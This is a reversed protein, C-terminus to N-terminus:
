KGVGASVDKSGEYDIEEDAAVQSKWNKRATWTSPKSHMRKRLQAMISKEMDEVGAEFEMDEKAYAKTRRREWAFYLAVTLVTFPVGVVWYLWFRPSVVSAMDPADNFNFFTTSFISALFTGPLFITGLLAIGKMAESERKSIHTLKSQEGAMHLSLRSERQAIIGSLASRQIELRKMTTNAYTEIGMWRKKYLQLRSTFTKQFKEIKPDEKSTPITNMFLHACDGISDIVALFEATPTSLLRQQCEVIDRSIADVDLLGGDTAYSGDEEVVNRLMIGNELRRTWDRTERQKDDVSSSCLHSLMIAPLLIAHGLESHCAKLHQICDSVGSLRTGKFFGSTIGTKVEYSLILEWGRTFGKKRPGSKRFIIQFQPSDGNDDLACWFFLGVVSSTELGVSPLHFADVMALYEETAMSITHPALTERQSAQDQIILRIGAVLHVDNPLVAPTFAGQRHLFNTTETPPLQRHDTTNLSSDSYSFMELYSTDETVTQCKKIVNNFAYSDM